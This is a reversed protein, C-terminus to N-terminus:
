ISPAFPQTQYMRKANHLSLRGQDANRDHEWAAIEDTLTQKDPSRRDLCQSSLISLESV